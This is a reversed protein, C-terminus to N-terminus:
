LYSGCKFRSGISSKDLQFETLTLGKLFRIWLGRSIQLSRVLLCEEGSVDRAWGGELFSPDKKLFSCVSIASEFSWKKVRLFSM